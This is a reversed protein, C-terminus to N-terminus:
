RYENVSHTPEQGEDVLSITVSSTALYRGKKNEAVRMAMATLAMAEILSVAEIVASSVQPLPGGDPNTRTVRFKKM